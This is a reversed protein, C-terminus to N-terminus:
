LILLNSPAGVIRGGMNGVVDGLKAKMKNGALSNSAGGVILVDPPCFQNCFNVNNRVSYLTGVTLIPVGNV